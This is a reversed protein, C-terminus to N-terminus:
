IQLGFIVRVVRASFGRAPTLPKITKTLHTEMTLKASVENKQFTYNKAM